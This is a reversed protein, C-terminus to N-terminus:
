EGNSLPMFDLVASSYSAVGIAEYAQVSLEATPLGNLFNFAKARPHGSTRVATVDTDHPRGAALRRAADLLQTMVDDHRRHSRDLQDLSALSMPGM